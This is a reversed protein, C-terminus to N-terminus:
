SLCRMFGVSVRIEEEITQLTASPDVMLMYHENSTMDVIEMVAKDNITSTAIEGLKEVTWSDREDMETLTPNVEPPETEQHNNEM